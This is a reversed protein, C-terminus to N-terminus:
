KEGWELKKREIRREKDGMEREAGSTVRLQLFANM